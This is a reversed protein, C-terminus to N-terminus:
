PQPTLLVTASEDENLMPNEYEYREAYLKSRKEFLKKARGSPEVYPCVSGREKLPLKEIQIEVKAIQQYLEKM